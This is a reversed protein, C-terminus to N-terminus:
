IVIEYYNEDDDYFINFYYVSKEWVVNTPNQVGPNLDGGVPYLDIYVSLRIHYWHAFRM